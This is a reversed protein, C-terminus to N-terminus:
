LDRRLIEEVPLNEIYDISPPVLVSYERGNTRPDSDDTARFQVDDRSIVYSGPVIHDFDLARALPQGNELVAGDPSRIACAIIRATATRYWLRRAGNPAREMRHPPIRMPVLTTVNAISSLAEVDPSAYAGTLPAFTRPHSPAFTGPDSPALTGPDSPALTVAGKLAEVIRNRSLGPAFAEWREVVPDVHAGEASHLLTRAAALLAQGKFPRYRGRVLGALKSKRSPLLGPLDDPTVNVGAGHLIGAGTANIFTRGKERRMQEVLWDRFAVLHAATRTEAGNVDPATLRPWRDIAEIWQRRLGMGYHLRRRWDHEYTVGRAYLRNETFALDAGVFAIPDCDMRLALDFATTLVSGWARLLGVTRGQSQLWPWPQHDSVRFFFTRGAFCEIALPDISGETVLWTDTSHPLETLHRSNQEAPDVAVVIHPTVGAHFLPTSATDVAIIFASHQLQRLIPIARDLSPGAGVLIAPVGRGAGDLAAADGESAIAGVNRLTHLLYPGAHAQRAAHNSQAESRVRDVLAQAQNV